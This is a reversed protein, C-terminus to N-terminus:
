MYKEEILGAPGGLFGFLKSDKCASKLGDFLGCIVNHGGPAQGGSLIVGVRLAKNEVTNKGKKFVVVPKGYTNPFLSKVDEHDAASQTEKGFEACVDSLKENLVEPTKPSYAYRSKQLTSIIM